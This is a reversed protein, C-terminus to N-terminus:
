SETVLRFAYGYDACPSFDEIEEKDLLGTLEYEESLSVELGAELMREYEQYLKEKGEESFCLAEYVTEGDKTVDGFIDIAVHYRYIEPYQLEITNNDNDYCDIANKLGLWIMFSGKSPAKYCVQAQMPFADIVRVVADSKQEKNEEVAAAFEEKVTDDFVVADNRGDLEVDAVDAGNDAKGTTLANEEPKQTLAIEMDAGGANLGEQPVAEESVTDAGSKWGLQSVWLSVAVAFFVAACATLSRWKLTRGIPRITDAFANEAFPVAEEILSDDIYAMADLLQRGKM